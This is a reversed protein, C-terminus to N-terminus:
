ASNPVANSTVEKESMKHCWVAETGNGWEPRKQSKDCHSSCCERGKGKPEKKRGRGSGGSRTKTGWPVAASRCAAQWTPTKRLVCDEIKETLIVSKKGRLNSRRHEDGASISRLVEEGYNALHGLPYLKKM